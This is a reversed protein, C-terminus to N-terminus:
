IHIQLTIVTGKGIESDLSFEANLSRARNEMSNLGFISKKDNKKPNFGIGDDEITLIIIDPYCMLQITISKANAHKICNNVAEQTIRYLGFETRQDLRELKNNTYFKFQTDTAGKLSDIMNEVALAYGFDNLTSPMLNHAINRSEGVAHNILNTLNSFRAQDKSSLKSINHSIKDMNLSIASLTQGLSDHVDKSIRKRERDETNMITAIIKQEAGKVNLMNGLLEGLTDILNREEFSFPGEQRPPTEEKYYVSIVGEKGDNTKISAMMHWESEKFNKSTFVGFSCTIKACAIEPYYWSLPVLDVAEQLISEISNHEDSILKSVDYLCNLEKNREALHSMLEQRQQYATKRETIDRAFGCIYDVGEFSFRDLSIEVPLREGSKKLLVTEFRLHPNADNTIQFRRLFEEKKDNPVLDGPKFKLFEENSYGLIEIAKKNVRFLGLGLRTWFALDSSAEITNLALQAEQESARLVKNTAKLQKTKKDVQYRLLLSAIILVAVVVLLSLLIRWLWKPVIQVPAGIFYDEKLDYYLSNDNSIQIKVEKDIAKRILNSEPNNKSLGYRLSLHSIMIQSKVVSYNHANYDGFIKSILAADVIEEEVLKLAESYSNVKYVDIKLGLEKGLDMLGTSGNEYFYDGELSAIRLGDLNMIDNIPEDRYESYHIEAWTSIISTENFDFISDRAVSYGLDPLIDIENEKLLEMCNAFACTDYELKWSNERAVHELFDIFFGAAKGDEDIYVMPPNDFVGVKLTQAYVSSSLLVALFTLVINKM